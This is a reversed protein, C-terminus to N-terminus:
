RELKTIIPPHLDCRECVEDRGDRNIGVCLVCLPLATDM